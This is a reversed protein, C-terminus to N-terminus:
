GAGLSVIQKIGRPGACDEFFDDCFRTRIALRRQVDRPVSDSAVAATAATTAEELPPASSEEQAKAKERDEVTQMADPGALLEAYPDDFLRDRRRSELARSAAIMRSSYAVTDSSNLDLNSSSYNSDDS